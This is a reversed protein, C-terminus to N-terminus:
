EYYAGGKRLSEWQAADHGCLVTAGGSQLRRIRALSAMAADVNWTNRPAYDRDLSAMVSLADSALLPLAYQTPEAPRAGASYGRQDVAVARFGAQAVHRMVPLWSDAFQPFGHLFLVLPGSAPGLSLADFRLGNVDLVFRELDDLDPNM